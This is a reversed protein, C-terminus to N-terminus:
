QILKFNWSYELYIILTLHTQSAFHKIISLPQLYECLLKMIYVNQFM